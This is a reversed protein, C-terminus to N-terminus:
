REPARSGRSAAFGTASAVDDHPGRGLGDEHLGHGWEHHSELWAAHREADPEVLELM